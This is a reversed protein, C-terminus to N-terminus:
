KFIESSILGDQIEQQINRELHEYSDSCKQLYLVCARLERSFDDFVNSLSTMKKIYNESAQGSWSSNVSNICSKITDLEKSMNNNISNLEQAYNEVKEYSFKM